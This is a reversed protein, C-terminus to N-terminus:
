DLRIKVLINERLTIQDFTYNIGLEILDIQIQSVWDGKSPNEYQAMFFTKILSNDEENLIYWLFNMRRSQITFRLPINGTELYLLVKPTKSHASLIVYYCLLKDLLLASSTNELFVM